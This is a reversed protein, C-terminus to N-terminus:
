FIGLACSRRYFDTQECEKANLDKVRDLGMLSPDM